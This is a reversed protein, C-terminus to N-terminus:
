TLPKEKWSKWCLVKLYRGEAHINTRVRMTARQSSINSKAVAARDRVIGKQELFEFRKWLNYGMLGLGRYKPNTVSAGTCSEGNSFDARYPLEDISDKAEQTTAIWGRSALEGGIFVCLAIAGKDLRKRANTSQSRFDLGEAELEGAEENTSVIKVTFDQISPLPEAEGREKMIEQIDSEYIYYEEYRFFFSLVFPFGRRVLPILGETKLIRTARGLMWSIRNM